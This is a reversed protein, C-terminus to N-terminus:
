TSPNSTCLHQFYYTCHPPVGQRLIPNQHNEEQTVQRETHGFKHHCHTNNTIVNYSAYLDILNYFTALAKSKDQTHTHAHVSSCNQVSDTAIISLEIVLLSTM